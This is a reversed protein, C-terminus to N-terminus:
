EKVEWHGTKDSGIRVIIGKAKLSKIQNNITQRTVSLKEALESANLNPNVKLLKVIIQERESLKVTFDNKDTNKDTFGSKDFPIVVTIYNDFLEFADKGYNKVIEPVGHGSQEGFDCKLFIDFLEKNVPESKGKFFQEKSLKKPIGGNSEIELRDDYIYIGPNRKEAWKNHVCANYWAQEFAETDFMKKEKREGEGLKVYTENIAECYNRAQEVAFLLCKGGFDKRSVYNSKDKSNFTSVNIVLDNEDALIEAMLNYKGNSTLLHYNNEFTDDNIHFGHGILYTKLMQFTLGKRQSEIEIIDPEHINLTSEYRTKIETPLLSKCSSGNRVYVGNESLGYKKIYYLNSNDSIVDIVIIQVNNILEIHQHVFDICRPSIADTIVDSVKRQVEDIDEKIGVVVKNKNVGILITGGNTNLFAVIEKALSDNLKEKLELKDTENFNYM